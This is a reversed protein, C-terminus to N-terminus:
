QSKVPSMSSSPLPSLSPPLLRILKAEIQGSSNPEGIVTIYDGVKIDAPQITDRSRRIISDDNILVIKEVNDRGNVVLTSGDIKIIQGFTGHADIFDNGSFSKFFGGRPGGFNRQYNEGWVYSFRAKNYGIAIGLSLIGALLAVIFIASMLVIFKKSKLFDLINNLM